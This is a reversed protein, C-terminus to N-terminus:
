PNWGTSAATNSHLSPWPAIVYYYETLAEKLGNELSDYPAEGIGLVNVGNRHLRDCFFSSTRPFNPSIFIFNLVM